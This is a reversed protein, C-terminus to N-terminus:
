QRVAYRVVDSEVVVAAHGAFAVSCYECSKERQLFRALIEVHAHTFIRETGTAVRHATTTRRVSLQPTLDRELIERFPAPSLYQVRVPLQPVQLTVFGPAPPM